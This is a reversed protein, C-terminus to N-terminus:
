QRPINPLIGKRRFYDVVQAPVERLVEEALRYPNQSHTRFAVFQGLFFFFFDLV